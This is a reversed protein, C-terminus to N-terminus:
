PRRIHCWSRRHDRDRADHTCITWGETGRRLVNGAIAYPASVRAAKAADSAAGGYDGRNISTAADLLYGPSFPVLDAIALNTHGLGTSGLLGEALRRAEPSLPGGAGTYDTLLMSLRDRLTPEYSRVSDGALHPMPVKALPPGEAALERQLRALNPDAIQQQAEAM